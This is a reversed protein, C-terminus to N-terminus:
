RLRACGLAAADIATAAGRLQYRDTFGAGDRGRGHVSMTTGSRMAAVIAADDRRDNAWVDTVGGVLFFSRGGITLKAQSQAALERSLRINVQGRIAQRPWYGIAVFPQWRRGAGLNSARSIAYCRAARPDRFAGWSEFIGLTDRAQVAVACALAFGAGALCAIQLSRRIM